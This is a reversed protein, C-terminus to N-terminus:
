PLYHSQKLKVESMVREERALGLFEVKFDCLFMAKGAVITFYVNNIM